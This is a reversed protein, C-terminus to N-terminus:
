RTSTWARPRTLDSLVCVNCVLCDYSIPIFLTQMSSYGTDEMKLQCTCEPAFKLHTLAKYDSITIPLMTLHQALATDHYNSTNELMVVRSIAVTPVDTILARRLSNSYPQPVDRLRFTLEQDLLSVLSEKCETSPSKVIRFCPARAGLFTAASSQIASTVVDGQKQDAAATAASTTPLSVLTWQRVLHLFQNLCYDLAKYLVKAPSLPAGSWVGIRVEIRSPAQQARSDKHVTCSASAIRLAIKQDDHQLWNSLPESLTDDQYPIVFTLDNPGKSLAKDIHVCRWSDMDIQHPDSLSPTLLHFQDCCLRFLIILIHHIAFIVTGCIRKLFHWPPTTNSISAVM